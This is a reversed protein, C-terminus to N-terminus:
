SREFLFTFHLSTSFLGESESTSLFDTEQVRISERTRKDLLMRYHASLKHVNKRTTDVVAMLIAPKNVAFEHSDQSVVRHYTGDYHKFVVRREYQPGKKPALGPVNWLTEGTIKNITVLCKRQPYGMLFVTHDLIAPESITSYTPDFTLLMDLGEPSLESLSMKHHFELGLYEQHMTYTKM